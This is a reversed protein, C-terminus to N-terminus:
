SKENGDRLLVQLGPTLTVKILKVKKSLLSKAAEIGASTAQEALGPDLTALSLSQIAQDTSQKSVNRGIADPANFGPLGDMDYVVLNVPLVYNQYRLSTITVELRQGNLLAIGSLANGKPVLIGKIYVDDQLRMKVMSGSVVTQTEDIVARICGPVQKEGDIAIDLSYFRNHRSGDREPGAIVSKSNVPNEKQLISISLTTSPVVVPYVKAKNTTSQQKIKNRVREPNQIDMIKDLMANIQQMSTDTGSSEKVRQLMSELREAEGNHVAPTIALDRDSPHLLGTQGGVKSRELQANLQAIRAYVREENQDRNEPLGSGESQEGYLKTDTTANHFDLENVAGSFNRNSYPDNRMSEKLRASDRVAQEYFQLKNFKNDKLKAAPLDTNLGAVMSKKEITAQGKGGGFTWFLFIIFPLVLLPAIWLFREKPNINWKLKKLIM